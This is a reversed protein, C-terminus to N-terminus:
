MKESVNAADSLINLPDKSTYQHTENSSGTPLADQHEYNFHPNQHAMATSVGPCHQPAIVNGFSIPQQTTSNWASYPYHVNSGATYTGAYPPIMYPMHHGPSFFPDVAPHNYTSYASPNLNNFLMRCRPSRHRSEDESSSTSSHRSRKKRRKSKKKREKRENDCANETKLKQANQVPSIQPSIAM